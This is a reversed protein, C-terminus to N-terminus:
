ALGSLAHTGEPGRRWTVLLAACCLTSRRGAPLAPRVLAFLRGDFSCCAVAFGVQGGSKSVMDDISFEVSWAKM